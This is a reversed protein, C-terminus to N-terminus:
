EGEGAIPNAARSVRVVSAPQEQEAIGLSAAEFSRRMM